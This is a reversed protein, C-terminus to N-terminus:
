ETGLMNEKHYVKCTKLIIVNPVNPVYYRGVRTRLIFERVWPIMVLHERTLGLTTLDTWKQGAVPLVSSLCYM